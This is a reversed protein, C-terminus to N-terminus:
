ATEPPPITPLDNRCQIRESSTPRSWSNTPSCGIAFSHSAVVSPVAPIWVSSHGRCELARWGVIRIRNKSDHQEGHKESSCHTCKKVVQSQSAFVEVGEPKAPSLKDFQTPPKACKRCLREGSVNAKIDLWALDIGSGRAEAIAYEPPRVKHERAWAFREALTHCCCSRWGQEASPCGCAHDSCPFLEDGRTESAGAPLPVGIATFAYSVLLMASTFRGGSMRRRLCRNVFGMICWITLLGEILRIVVACETL